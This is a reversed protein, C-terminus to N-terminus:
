RTEYELKKFNIKFESVKIFLSIIIIASVIIFLLNIILYGSEFYTLILNYMTHYIMGILLGMYLFVKKRKAYSMAWFFGILGCSIIHLLDATVMRLLSIQIGELILTNTTVVAMLNEVVGFGIGSFIMYIMFDIPEDFDKNLKFIIFVVIFKFFEELISVISLGFINISYIKEFIIPFFAQFTTQTYLALFASAGGLLITLIIWFAPEKKKYDRLWFFILWVILPLVAIISLFIQKIM